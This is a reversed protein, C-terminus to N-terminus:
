RTLDILQLAAPPPQATTGKQLSVFSVGEIAGLPELLAAPCSRNRDNKHRPNGSWALGVRLKGNQKPLKAAWDSVRQPNPTIYPEGPVTEVTTAFVLPLSLLPMHVDFASAPAKGQPVIEDVGRVGD